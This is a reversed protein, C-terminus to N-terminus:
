RTIGSRVKDGSNESWQAAVSPDPIGQKLMEITRMYRWISIDDVGETILLVVHCVSFLFVGLQLGMIEHALEASM